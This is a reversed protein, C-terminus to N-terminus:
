ASKRRVVFGIAALGTFLLAYTSPEPVAPTVLSRLNVSGALCAPGAGNACEAPHPLFVNSFSSGLQVDAPGGFASAISNTNFFGNASGGAGATNGFLSGTLDVDLLGANNGAAKAGGINNGSGALTNGAGDITHGALTLFLQGNTAAALDAASSGSGFPNFDATAGSGVYFNMYGGSYTVSTPSLSTVTYGDFRYTLECGSCLSSIAVGNIQSINGYGSLTQGVGTVVNEFISGVQFTPGSPLNLGGVNVAMAYSSAVTLVLAAVLPKQRFPM